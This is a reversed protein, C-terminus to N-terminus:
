SHSSICLVPELQIIQHKEKLFLIPVIHGFEDVGLLDFSDYDRRLRKVLQLIVTNCLICELTM